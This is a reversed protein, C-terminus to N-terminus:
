LTLVQETCGRWILPLGLRVRALVTCAALKAQDALSYRGWRERAARAIRSAHNQEGDFVVFLGGLVFPLNPHVRRGIHEVMACIRVLEATAKPASETEVLYLKDGKILVGDCHKGYRKLLLERSVPAHGQILAYETFTQFGQGQKDICWRSTLATHRFTPGSVALDLGHRADIGRLELAAAGPRTLVFSTGGLANARAKLEGTEVLGRVTRQAMQEGFKAGPWCAAGLDACRLPGHEGVAALVRLRNAAAIERSTAQKPQKPKPAPPRLLGGLIDSSIKM